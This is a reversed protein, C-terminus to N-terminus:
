STCETALYSEAACNGSPDQVEWCTVLMQVGHLAAFNQIM